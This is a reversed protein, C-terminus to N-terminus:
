SVKVVSHQSAIGWMMQEKSSTDASKPSCISHQEVYLTLSPGQLSALFEASCNSTSDSTLTASLPRQTDAPTALAFPCILILGCLLICQWTRQSMSISAVLDRNLQTFLCSRGHVGRSSRQYPNRALLGYLERMSISTKSSCRIRSM